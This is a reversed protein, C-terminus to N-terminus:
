YMLHNLFFCPAYTQNFPGMRANKKRRCIDTEKSDKDSTLYAFKSPIQFCSFKKRPDNKKQKLNLDADLDNTHKCIHKNQNEKDTENSTSDQKMQDDHYPNLNKLKKKDSGKNLELRYNNKSKDNRIFFKHKKRYAIQLSYLLTQALKFTRTITRQLHLYFFVKM